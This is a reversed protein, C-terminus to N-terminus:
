DPRNPAFLKAHKLQFASLLLCVGGFSAAILLPVPTELFGFGILGAAIASGSAQGVLRATSVSGGAAGSRTPPASSVIVRSNPSVFLAFGAGGLALRWALDAMGSAAPAYAILALASTFITMGISGLLGPSAKDSLLGAVPSIMMMVLPWIALLQGIEIPSFGHLTGLRFPMTVNVIMSAVFVCIAAVVARAFFPNALLDFPLIPRTAGREHRSLLIVAALGTAAVAVGAILNGGHLALEIGAIFLGFTAACLAAALLDYRGPVSAASPLFRGLALSCCVLPAAVMFSAQWPLTATVYGGVTPAFAAAAAITISNIALGRGLMNEPYIRRVTAATVSLAAAAGIAQLARVVVLTPLSDVLLMALSAIVFAAQGAQYLKRYGLKDGLTAFPLILAVLIVQYVTVVLVASADPVGLQKAITPLAVTALGGDLVIASTGLSLAAVAPWSIKPWSIQPDSM